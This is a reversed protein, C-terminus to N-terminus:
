STVKGREAFVTCETANDARLDVTISWKTAKGPAADRVVASGRARVDYTANIWSVTVAYDLPKATPNTVTGNVVVKGPTVSCAGMAVDGRAGVANAVTPVDPLDPPSVNQTLVGTTTGGSGGCGAIALCVVVAAIAARAVRGAPAPPASHLSSKVHSM